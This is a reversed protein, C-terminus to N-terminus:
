AARARLREIPSRWARRRQERRELREMGMVAAGAALAYVLHHWLDIAIEKPGWRTVPPAIRLAPLMVAETGWVTGLHAATQAPWPLGTLTLLGRPIGWSSGYWWHVMSSFRQKEEEGVPAVGLVKSAATAPADSGKRGRAKMEITSSVTMALTGALGAIMGKGLASPLHAIRM